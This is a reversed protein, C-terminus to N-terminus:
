SLTYHSLKPVLYDLASHGEKAALQNPPTTFPRTWPSFIAFYPRALSASMVLIETVINVTIIADGM